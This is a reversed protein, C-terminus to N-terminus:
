AMLYEWMPGKIGHERFRRMQPERGGNGASLVWQRAGGSASAVMEWISSEDLGEAFYFTPRLCDADRSVLGEKAAEAYVGTGPYIRVGAFPFIICKELRAANSITEHVTDPTEGPGGFIVYHACYVGEDRCADSARIVDDVTFGKRYSELMRESMSDSGLEVHKLGSAKLMRLYQRDIGKPTFFAGWQIDLGRRVIEGALAEDRERSLNFVSDVVFFYSIGHDKALQEMQDVVEAPEHWRVTRGEILPYACYSCQGPCGRKTQIGIMGGHRWYFDVIEPDHAPRASIAVDAARACGDGGATVLGQVSLAERRGKIVEMLECIAQEGAGVIGYDAGLALMAERPFLSFGSGGAVIPADTCARISEVVGCHEDLYFRGTSSDINDINRISVGVLDPRTDEIMARLAAPGHTQLDYQRPNHGAQVLAGALHALALPYVPSPLNESNASALLVNGTSV